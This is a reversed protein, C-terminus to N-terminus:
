WANDMEETSIAWRMVSEANAESKDLIATQRGEHMVLIRDSIGIVEPLESSILIIAVGRKAM